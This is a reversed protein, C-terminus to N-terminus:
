CDFLNKIKWLSFNIICNLLKNFNNYRMLVWGCLKSCVLNRVFM